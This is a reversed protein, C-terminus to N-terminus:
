KGECQCRSCQDVQLAEAILQRQVLQGPESSNLELLICKANLSKKEDRYKDILLQDVGAMRLFAEMKYKHHFGTGFCRAMVDIIESPLAV